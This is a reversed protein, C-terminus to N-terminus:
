AWGLLLDPRTPDMSFNQGLPDNSPGHIVRDWDLFNPDLEPEPKYNWFVVASM